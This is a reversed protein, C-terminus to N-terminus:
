GRPEFRGPGFVALSRIISSSVVRTPCSLTKKFLSALKCATSSSMPSLCVRGQKCCLRRTRPRGDHEDPQSSTRRCKSRTTTKLMARSSIQPASGTCQGLYHDIPSGKTRHAKLSESDQLSRSPSLGSYNVHLHM